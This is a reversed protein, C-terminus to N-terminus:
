AVRRKKSHRKLVTVNDDGEASAPATAAPTVDVGKFNTLKIEM